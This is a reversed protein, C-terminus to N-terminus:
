VEREEYLARIGRGTHTPEDSAVGYGNGSLMFGNAQLLKKADKIYKYPYDPNNSYFNVDYDYICTTANNDYHVGDYSPREWFTFFHDPYADNEGLSGQLMVPFGFSNLLQLLLDEM